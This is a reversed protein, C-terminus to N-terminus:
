NNGNRYEKITNILVACLSTIIPTSVGFDMISLAQLIYVALAGGGAILAGKGVKILTTKDFSNRIQDM